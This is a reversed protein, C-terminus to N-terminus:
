YQENTINYYSTSFFLITPNKVLHKAFTLVPDIICINNRPFIRSAFFRIWTFISLYTSFSVMGENMVCVRQKDDGETSQVHYRCWTYLSFRYLTLIGKMLQQILIKTNKKKTSRSMQCPLKLAHLINLIKM